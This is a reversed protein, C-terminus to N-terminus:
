AESKGENEEEVQGKRESVGAGNGEAFRGVFRGVQAVGLEDGPMAAQGDGQGLTAFGTITRGPWRKIMKQDSAWQQGYAINRGGPEFSDTVSRAPEDGGVALGDGGEDVSGVFVRGPPSQRQGPM